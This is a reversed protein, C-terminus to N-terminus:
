LDRSLQRRQLIHRIFLFIYLVQLVSGAVFVASQWVRGTMIFQIHAPAPVSVLLVVVALALGFWYGAPKGAFVLLTAAAFGALGVCLAVFLWLPVVGWVMYVLVAGLLTSALLLFRLLIM